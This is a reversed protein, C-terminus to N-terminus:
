RDGRKARDRHTRVRAATAARNAAAAALAAPDEAIVAARREDRLRKMRAADRARGAAACAEQSDTPPIAAPALTLVVRPDISRDVVAAGVCERPLPLPRPPSAVSSGASGAGAGSAGAGTSAGTTHPVGLKGVAIDPARSRLWKQFETYRRRRLMAWVREDQLKKEVLREAEDCMLLLNRALAIRSSDDCKLKGSAAIGDM